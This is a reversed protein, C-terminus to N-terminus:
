HLASKGQCILKATTKKKDLHKPFVFEKVNILIFEHMFPTLYNFCETAYM